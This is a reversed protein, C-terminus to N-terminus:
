KLTALVKKVKDLAVLFIGLFGESDKVLLPNRVVEENIELFQATICAPIDFRRNPTSITM